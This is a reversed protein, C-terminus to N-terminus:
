PVSKFFRRVECFWFDCVFLWFTVAANCFGEKKVSIWSGCVLVFRPTRVGFIYPVPCSRLSGFPFRRLFNCRHGCLFLPPQNPGCFHKSRASQLFEGFNWAFLLPQRFQNFNISLTPDLYNLPIAGSSATTRFIRSFSDAYLVIVCLKLTLVILNIPYFLPSLESKESWVSTLCVEPMRM